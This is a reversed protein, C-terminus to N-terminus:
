IKMIFDDEYEMNLLTIENEKLETVFIKINVNAKSGLKAKLDILLTQFSFVSNQKSLFCSLQHITQLKNLQKIGFIIILFVLHCYYSLLISKM